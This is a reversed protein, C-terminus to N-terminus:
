SSRRRRVTGEGDAVISGSLLRRARALQAAGDASRHVVRRADARLRHRQAAGVGGARLHSRARSSTRRPVPERRRSLDDAHRDARRRGGASVGAGVPVAPRSAPGAAEFDRPPAPMSFRSATGPRGAVRARRRQSDDLAAVAEARLGTAYRCRLVDEDRDHLYLVWCSGPVLRSLKSTLLAMTDDVSLRTGLTQAIDHLARMEQTALSINHFVWAPGSTRCRRCVWRETRQARSDVPVECCRVAARVAVAARRAHAPDGPVPGRAISRARPRGRGSADRHGRRSRGGCSLPADLTLADFYDVVALVRAGLPTEEGQLGDPYGSGDWREHHSRILPAVPYPFPVAKIIEAGVIPHIRVRAFEKATLRGPKTLIHEPVALKGIDHLLAAVKVAEVERPGHRRGRGAGDGM